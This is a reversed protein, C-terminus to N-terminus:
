PGVNQVQGEISEFFTLLAQFALAEDAFRVQLGM